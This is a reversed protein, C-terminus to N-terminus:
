QCKKTFAEHGMSIAGGTHIRMDSYAAYAAYIWTYVYTLIDAVIIIKDGIAEKVWLM